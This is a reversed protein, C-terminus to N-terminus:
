EGTPHIGSSLNPHSTAPSLPFPIRWPCLFRRRNWCLAMNLVARLPFIQQWQILPWWKAGQLIYTMTIRASVRAPLHFWTPREAPTETYNLQPWTQAKLCPIPTQRCCQSERIEVANATEQIGQLFLSAQPNADWMSVESKHKMWPPIPFLLLLQPKQRRKRKRLWRSM